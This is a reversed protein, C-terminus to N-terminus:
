KGLEEKIDYNDSFRTCATPAAMTDNTIATTATATATSTLSSPRQFGSFECEQLPFVKNSKKDHENPRKRKTPVENIKVVDNTRKNIESKSIENLLKNRREFAKRDVIGRQKLRDNMVRHICFFLFLLLLHFFSGFHFFLSCRHFFTDKM